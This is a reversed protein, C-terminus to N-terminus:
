PVIKHEVVPPRSAQRWQHFHCAFVRGAEPTRCQEDHIRMRHRGLQRDVKDIRNAPTVPVYVVKINDDLEARVEDVVAHCLDISYGLPEGRKNIYSFPFSNERYGLAVTGSDKIKEVNGHAAASAGDPAALAALM